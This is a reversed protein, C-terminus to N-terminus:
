FEALLDDDFPILDEPRPAAGHGEPGGNGNGKGNGNGNGSATYASAALPSSGARDSAGVGAGVPSAPADARERRPPAAPRAPAASLAGTRASSSGRRPRSLTFGDVMRNMRGAQATLEQASGASEEASAATAQTVANMQEVATSIREVGSSQHESAAAIEGMVERVRDVGTEIEGLHAVVEETIAVGSEVSQVSEEIRKATDKAAEASRMALNRVEEAVVAFGKGADGARAAEVAANLALLNTQFAIEDITKVIRATDDASTKIRTMAESLTHMSEVGKGTADRAAETISRAERSNATNQSAMSALEQLSGSVDELSSAQESSGEALAQSGADIQDAAAAVQESVEAVDSLAVDLNSVATNLSAKMRAFAGEYEGEMRADLSRHAVRELVSSAEDVPGSVADMVDNMGSLLYAYAGRYEHVDVRPLLNGAQVGEILTRADAVVRGLTEAARGLESALRDDASRARVEHDLEGRTLAAAAAAQDDLYAAVGRVAAALADSEGEGEFRLAAGTRGAALERLAETADRAGACPGSGGGPITVAAVAAVAAVVLAAAVPLPGGFLAVLLGAGGGIATLIPPLV